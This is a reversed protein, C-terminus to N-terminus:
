FSACTINNAKFLTIISEAFEAELEKEMTFIRYSIGGIVSLNNEQFVINLFVGDIDNPNLSSKTSNLLQTTDNENARLVIKLQTPTKKGKILSFVKEKAISWPLYSHDVIDFTSLEDESFFSRNVHGDLTYSMDTLITSSVFQYCDLTNTQFLLQMFPKVDLINISQM